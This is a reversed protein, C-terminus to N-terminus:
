FSLHDFSFPARAALLEAKEKDIEAEQELCKQKLPKLLDEKEKLRALSAEVRTKKEKVEELKKELWDMKFGADTMYALANGADSLDDNSLEQPSQCLTQTISLLVNMYGTRVHPNKSRFELAMDPHKEFIRSWYELQSTLVQVGNFSLTKEGDDNLKTKKLPSSPVDLKGIVELVDVKVVIKLEGNVLFGSNLGTLIILPLMAPFGWYVCNSDLWHQLERTFSCKPQIQNVITFSFKVHRGWGAPLLEYDSVKLYLSINNLSNNGKPYVRLRWKCGGVVFEDSHLYGSPWSDFNKIVWTFKNDDQKEM